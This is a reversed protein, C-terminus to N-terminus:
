ALLLQSSIIYRLIKRSGKRDKRKGTGDRAMLWIEFAFLVTFATLLIVHVSM